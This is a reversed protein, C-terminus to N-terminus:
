LEGSETDFAPYRSCLVSFLGKISEPYVAYANEFLLSNGTLKTLNPMPDNTSGYPRLYRAGTSELSIIVINRGTASGRLFELDVTAERLRPLRCAGIKM